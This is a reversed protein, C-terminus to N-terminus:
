VVDVEDHKIDLKGVHVSHFDKLLNM